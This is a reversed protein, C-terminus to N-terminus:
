EEEKKLPQGRLKLSETVRDVFHPLLVEIVDLAKNVGTVLEGENNYEYKSQANSFFVAIDFYSRPWHICLACNIFRRWTGRDADIFIKNNGSIPISFSASGLRRDYKFEPMRKKMIERITASVNIKEMPYIVMLPIHPRPGEKQLIWYVFAHKTEVHQPYISNFSDKGPGLREQIDWRAHEVLMALVRTRLQTDIEDVYQLYKEYHYSVVEKQLPLRDFPPVRMIVSEALDGLTLALSCRIIKEDDEM